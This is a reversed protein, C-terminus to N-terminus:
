SALAHEMATPSELMRYLTSRSIGLVQAARLKNGNCALLVSRIHEQVIRELTVLRPAPSQHASRSESQTLVTGLSASSLPADGAENLLQRLVSALQNLNGPWEYKCVTPLFDSTLIPLPAGTETAYQQLFHEVLLPLDQARERLAPLRLRVASLASALEPLFSGASLQPRLGNRTFAIVRLARPSGLYFQRLLGSQSPLSLREVSRFFLTGNLPMTTTPDELTRTLLREAEDANLAYFPSGAIPSLDHLVRAAAEAGTGPEGNLMMMRFHPAVRRMQAWLAGIASSPGILLSSHTLDPSQPGPVVTLARPEPQM